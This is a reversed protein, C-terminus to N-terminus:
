WLYPDRGKRMSMAFLFPCAVDSPRRVFLVFIVRALQHKKKESKQPGAELKPIGMAAMASACFDGSRYTESERKSNSDVQWGM